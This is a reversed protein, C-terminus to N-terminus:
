TKLPTWPTWGGTAAEDPYGPAFFERHTCVNCVLLRLLTESTARNQGDFAQLRVTGRPTLDQYFGKGCVRCPLILQGSENLLPVGEGIRSLSEDVVELLEHASALCLGPEEVLCKDLISNILHMYKNNAFLAALDFGPRRHYERPLRLRGAIMCWLLKGLMYVDFCPEVKELREGLDAWQPMYQWPGVREDTITPRAEQGASYVIGFDGPILTGDTGIFVNAPKIDRHVDGYKHISTAVTEVLTRFAKLALIPEGKYRLPSKALTGGPFYETVMWQNAESADLLRPLNPRQQQLVAIERKLREQAPAGGERIKFVKLAGLESPFDERALGLVARSFKEASQM